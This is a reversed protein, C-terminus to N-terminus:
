NFAADDEDRAWSMMTVLGATHREIRAATDLGPRAQGSVFRSVVSHDVGILDGFERQSMKKLSLYTALKNM